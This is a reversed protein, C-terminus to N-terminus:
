KNCSDEQPKSRVIRVEKPAEIGIGVKGNHVKTVKVEIDKGISLSQGVGITLVLM